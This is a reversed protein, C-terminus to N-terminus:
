ITNFNLNKQEKIIRAIFLKDIKKDLTYSDGIFQRQPIHISLQEKKTLAMWKYQTIGTKKFLFWFYKKMKPTVTVKITGGSNHIEAYPIGDGASVVIKQMTAQEIKVSNKLQLSQSLLKHTLADKRKPWAIFSIDTFGEKIFSQLFFARAKESVEEPLGKLADEAVKKFNPIPFKNKM